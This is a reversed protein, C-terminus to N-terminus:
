RDRDADMLARLRRLDPLLREAIDDSALRALRAIDPALAAIAAERFARGDPTIFVLKSRGDQPNPGMAVFGKEELVALTHTMTTKPVQFARALDLPSRGDGLRVFHNLVSFQPLALGQPMRAEFAARALQAIIGVENFVGFWTPDAPAQATEAPLPTLFAEFATDPLFWHAGSLSTDTYRYFGEPRDLDLLYPPGLMREPPAYLMAALDLPDRAVRRDFATLFIGRRHTNRESQGQGIQDQGAQNCTQGALESPILGYARIDGCGRADLSLTTFLCAAERGLVAHRVARQWHARLQAATLPGPEGRFRESLSGAEIWGWFSPGETDRVAEDLIQISFAAM